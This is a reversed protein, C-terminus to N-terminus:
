HNSQITTETDIVERGHVLSQILMGSLLDKWWHDVVDESLEEYM